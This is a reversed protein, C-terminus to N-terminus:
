LYAMVGAEDLVATDPQITHQKPMAPFANEFIQKLKFVLRHMDSYWVSYFEIQALSFIYMFCFYYWFGWLTFQGM